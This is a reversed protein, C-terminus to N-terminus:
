SFLRRLISDRKGAIANFESYTVSDVRGAIDVEGKDLTLRSIHLDTGKIMMMGQETELLIENDDFSLVDKVGSISGAKRDSLLFKHARTPTQNAESM